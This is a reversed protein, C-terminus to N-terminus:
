SSPSLEPGFMRTTSTSTKQYKWVPFLQQSIGKIRSCMMHLLVVLWHNDPINSCKRRIIIIWFICSSRGMRRELNTFTSMYLNGM